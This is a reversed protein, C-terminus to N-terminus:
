GGRGIPSFLSRCPRTRDTLSDWVEPDVPIRHERLKNGVKRAFDDPKDIYKDDSRM